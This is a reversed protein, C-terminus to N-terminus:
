VSTILTTAITGWFKKVLGVITVVTALGGTVGIKDANSKIFNPIQQFFKQISDTVSSHGGAGDEGRTQLAKEESLKTLKEKLQGLKQTLEYNELKETQELDLRWTAGDDDRSYYVYRDDGTGRKELGVMLLNEPTFGGDVSYYATVSKLISSPNIGPLAESNYRVEKVMFSKDLVSHVFSTYNGDIDKRTINIQQRGGESGESPDQYTISRESSDIGTRGVDITVTPLITKLLELITTNDFPSTLQNGGVKTWTHSDISTRQYWRSSYPLYILLARSEEGDKPYWYVNAQTMSQLFEIGAQETGGNQLRRIYGDALYHRYYSYDTAPYNTVTIPKSDCGTCNYPTGSGSGTDDKQSIDVIHAKNHRCNQTDLEGKLNEADIGGAPIWQKGVGGASSLRYYSRATSKLELLLPNRHNNDGIWFYVYAENYPTAYVPPDFPINTSGNKTSLLRITSIGGGTAKHTYKKYCDYIKSETVQIQLTPNSDPATDEGNAYYTSNTETLNLVVLDKLQGNLDPLKSRLQNEETVSLYDEEKWGSSISLNIRTYYIYRDNGSTRELGVILPLANTADYGLYYVTVSKEYRGSDDVKISGQKVRSYYIGDIYHSKTAPTHTYRKYGQEPKGDVKHINITNNCTDTYSGNDRAQSIDIDVLKRESDSDTENSM